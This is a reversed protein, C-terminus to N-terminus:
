RTDSVFQAVIQLQERSSEPLHARECLARSILQMCAIRARDQEIPEGDVSSYRNSMFANAGRKSAHARAASIARGLAARDSPTDAVVVPSRWYGLAERIHTPLSAVRGVEPVTHRTDHGGITRARAHQTHRAAIHQLSRVIKDHAAPRDAWAIAHEITHPAGAPVVFDRYLSGKGCPPLSRLLADISVGRGHRLRVMPARWSLPRMSLLSSGKSRRAIGCVITYEISDVCAHEFWLEGTRQADITRISAYTSICAAASYAAIFHSSSNSELEFAALIDLPLMTRVAPM